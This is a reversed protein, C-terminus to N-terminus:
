LVITSRKEIIIITETNSFVHSKWYRAMLVAFFVFHFKQSRTTYKDQSVAIREANRGFRVVIIITAGTVIMIACISENEGRGSRIASTIKEFIPPTAVSTHSGGFIIIADTAPYSKLKKKMCENGTM